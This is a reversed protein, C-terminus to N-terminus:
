ILIWSGKSSLPRLLFLAFLPFELDTGLTNLLEKRMEINIMLSPGKLQPQLSIDEFNRQVCMKEAM